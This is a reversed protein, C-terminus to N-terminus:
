LKGNTFFNELAKHRILRIFFFALIIFGALEFILPTPNQLISDIGTSVWDDFKYPFRLLTGLWNNEASLAPKINLFPWLFTEPFLWMSDLLLHLMSASGLLLVARTQRKKLLLVGIILLVLTFLLTHAYIRSNHYTNIFLVAGIPKDILDPLISGLLVFRYDIDPRKTKEKGTAATEYLKFAGATLGLHGFLIM